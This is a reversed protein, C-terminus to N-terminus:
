NRYLISPMGKEWMPTGAQKVSRGVDQALSDGSHEARGLLAM